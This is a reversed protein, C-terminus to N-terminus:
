TMMAKIERQREEPDTLECEFSTQVKRTKSWQDVDLSFIRRVNHNHDIADLSLVLRYTNEWGPGTAEKIAQAIPHDDPLELKM